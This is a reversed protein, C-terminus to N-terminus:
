ADHTQSIEHVMDANSITGMLCLIKACLHHFKHTEVRHLCANKQRFLSTREGRYLTTKVIRRINPPLFGLWNKGILIIPHSWVKIPFHYNIPYLLITDSICCLRSNGGCTRYCCDSSTLTITTFRNKCQSINAM